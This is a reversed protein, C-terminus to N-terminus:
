KKEFPLGTDLDNKGRGFKNMRTNDLIELM